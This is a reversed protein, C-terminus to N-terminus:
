SDKRHPFHLTFKTGKGIDSQVEVTGKHLNVLDYVLSLGVGSGTIGSSTTARYFRDFIRPLENQPIGIGNDQVHICLEDPTYNVTVNIFPNEISFKVANSLLNTMILTMVKRDMIITPPMNEFVARIIHDRSLDQQEECMEEILEKLDFEELHLDLKGTRLMNSSLVAEMMSVLRSVASRIRKLRTGVEEREMKDIRRELIQANGDVITLPTRFEHSVMSIFQKQLASAEQENSLATELKHRQVQYDTIDTMSIITGQDDPLSQAIMRMHRGDDLQFERQGKMGLWFEKMPQYYEHGKRIGMEDAMAEFVRQVAVGRTFGHANKPYLSLYHDSAFFVKREKDFVIFADASASLFGQFARYEDQHIRAQLRLIGKRLKQDFVRKFEPLQLIEWNFIADFDHAMMHLRQRIEPEPTIAIIDAVVGPYEWVRKAMNLKQDELNETVIFVLASHYAHIFLEDESQPTLFRIDQGAVLGWLIKALDKGHSDGFITIAPLVRKRLDVPLILDEDRSAPLSPSTM